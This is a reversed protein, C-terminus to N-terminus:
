GWFKYVAMNGIVGIVSWVSGVSFEGLVLGVFFPLVAQYAKAGGYRTILGKVVWAIFMCAWLKNMSWSSCIAYGVPHWVWWTYQMRLFGLGVTVLAGIIAACTAAGRMGEPMTLWGELRQWGQMGM